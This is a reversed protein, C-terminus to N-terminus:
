RGLDLRTLSYPDFVVTFASGAAEVPRRAPAIRLPDDRTNMGEPSLAEQRDKLVVAGAIRVGGGFGKLRFAVALPKDTEVVYAFSFPPEDEFSDHAVQQAVMSPILNCLLEIFQGGQKLDVPGRTLRENLIAIEEAAAPM